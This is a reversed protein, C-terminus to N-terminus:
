PSGIDLKLGVPLPCYAIPLGLLLSSVPIKFVKGITLQRNCISGEAVRMGTKTIIKM